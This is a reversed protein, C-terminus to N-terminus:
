KRMVVHWWEQALAGRDVFVEVLAKDKNATYAIVKATTHVRDELDLFTAEQLVANALDADIGIKAASVQLYRLEDLKFGNKKANAIVDFLLQTAQTSGDLALAFLCSEMLRETMVNNRLYFSRIFKYDSKRLPIPIPGTLSTKGDSEYKKSWATMGEDNGVYRIIIQANLRTNEDSDSLAKILETIKNDGVEFLAGLQKTSSHGKMEVLLQTLDGNVVRPQQGQATGVLLGFLLAWLISKRQFMPNHSQTHRHFLGVVEQRRRLM